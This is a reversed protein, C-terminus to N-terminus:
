YRRASRFDFVLKSGIQLTGALIFLSVFFSCVADVRVSNAAPNTWIIFGSVLVSVGRLIDAVLHALAASMNLSTEEPAGARAGAPTTTHGGGTAAGSFRTTSATGSQPPPSGDGIMDGAGSQHDDHSTGVAAGTTEQAAGSGDVEEDALVLTAGEVNNRFVYLLFADAVLNIITFGMMMRGDVDGYEDPGTLRDAADFLVIVTTVGLLLFSILAGYRDARKKKRPTKTKEAILSVIYGIVDVFMMAADGLLSLSSAVYGSFLQLVTLFLNVFILVWLTRIRSERQRADRLYQVPR